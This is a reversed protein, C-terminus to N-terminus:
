LDKDPSVIEYQVENLNLSANGSMTIEQSM